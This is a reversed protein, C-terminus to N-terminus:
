YMEQINIINIYLVENNSNVFSKVVFFLYKHFAYHIIYM